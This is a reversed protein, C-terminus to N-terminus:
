TSKGVLSIRNGGHREIEGAIDLDLLVSQVQRIGAGSLRVIEDVELPSPGLAAMVRDRPTGVDPSFDPMPADARPEEFALHPNVTPVEDDGALLEDWLPQNRYVPAVPDEGHLRGDFLDPAAIMPSLARVVDDVSACLNAGQRILDNTGEARPDLPSGPVAFVERGQENAFRATILSGSKRAAEIIVTGWAIGSIIRNRRPFDRGRPEWGFPMESVVAGTECIRELLPINEAPYPRDLGGALVAVTAFGLSTEHARTDIGRALGSVIAFGHETLGKALKDAFSRGVGSANRSGVIAVFPYKFAEARGKVAILPPAADIRRLLVPYDPEGLAIFRAGAAKAADIERMADDYTPIRIDGKSRKKLLEPLAELAASAGGYRNILANFTLPGISETRTLRLWDVRQMDTLRIGGTVHPQPWSM